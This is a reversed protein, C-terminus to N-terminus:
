KPLLSLKDVIPWQEVPGECNVFWVETAKFGRMCPEEAEGVGVQAGSKDEKVKGASVLASYFRTREEEKDHDTIYCLSLHPFKLVEKIEKEGDSLFMKHMEALDETRRCAIYVSQFYRDGVRVQEFPIYPGGENSHKELWSTLQDKASSISSPLSPISVLTVHPYFAPYSAPDLQPDSQSRPPPVMLKQLLQADEESPVLWLSLKGPAM